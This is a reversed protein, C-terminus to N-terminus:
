PGNMKLPPVPALPIQCTAGIIIVGGGGEYSINQVTGGTDWILKSSRGEGGVFFSLIFSLYLFFLSLVFFFEKRIFHETQYM